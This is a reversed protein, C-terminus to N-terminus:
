KGAEMREKHRQIAHIVVTHEVYGIKLAIQVLSFTTEMHMRYCAEHRAPVINRKRSKGRIQAVTVGHKDAVERIIQKWKEAYVLTPLDDPIEEIVPQVILYERRQHNTAKWQYSVGPVSTKAVERRRTMGLRQRSLLYRSKLRAETEPEVSVPLRISQSQAKILPIFTVQSM